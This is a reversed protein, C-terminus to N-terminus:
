TDGPTRTCSFSKVLIIGATDVEIPAIAPSNRLPGKSSTTAIELSCSSTSTKPLGSEFLKSYKKVAAFKKCYELAKLTTRADLVLKDLALAAPELTVM